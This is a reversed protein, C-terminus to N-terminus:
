ADVKRSVCNKELCDGCYGAKEFTEHLHPAVFRRKGNCKPSSRSMIRFRNSRDWEILGLAVLQGLAGNAWTPEESFRTKGDARRAIERDSVFTDPWNKLYRLICSEDTNLTSDMDNMHNQCVGQRVLATIIQLSLPLNHM